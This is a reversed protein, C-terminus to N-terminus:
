SISPVPTPMVSGAASAHALVRRFFMSSGKNAHGTKMLDKLCIIWTDYHPVLPPRGGALKTGNAVMVTSTVSLPYTAAQAFYSMIM